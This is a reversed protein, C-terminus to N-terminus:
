SGKEQKQIWCDLVELEQAVRKTPMERSGEGELRDRLRLIKEWLRQREEEPSSLFLHRYIEMAEVLYGQEVQLGAMTETLFNPDMQARRMQQLQRLGRIIAQLGPDPGLIPELPRLAELAQDYRGEQYLIRSLLLLCRPHSPSERLCRQASELAEKLRKGQLLGQALDALSSPETKM